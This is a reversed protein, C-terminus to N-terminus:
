VSLVGGGGDGARLVVHDDPAIARALRVEEVRNLEDEDRRAEVREALDSWGGGEGWGGGEM